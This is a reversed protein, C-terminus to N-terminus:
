LHDIRLSEFRAQAGREGAFHAEVLARAGRVGGVGRVIALHRDADDEGARHLVDDGRHRERALVAHRDQRAAAAGRLAALAHVDREDDVARLVQVADDREIGGRAERADLGAGHAVRQAVRGLAVREGERGVGRRM